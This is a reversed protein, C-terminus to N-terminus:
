FIFAGTQLPSTLLPMDKHETDNCIHNTNKHGPVRSLIIVDVALLRRLFGRNRIEEELPFGYPGVPDSRLNGSGKGPEFGTLTEYIRTGKLSM